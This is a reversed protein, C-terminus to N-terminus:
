GSELPRPPFIRTALVAGTHEDVIRLWSVRQGSQLPIEEAADMQWVEHPRRARTSEAQPRRGQPAPGLGSARFWRQLTRATPLAEERHEGVLMIRILAAGWTPHERRLHEAAARIPQGEPSARPQGARYSPVIGEEARERFRQLLNRVTRQPIELSQAIEGASAGQKWREYM